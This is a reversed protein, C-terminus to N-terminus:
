PGLNQPPTHGLEIQQEVEAVKHRIDTPLDGSPFNDVSYGVAEEKLGLRVVGGQFNGGLAAKIVDFTAMDPGKTASVIVSPDVAKQSLDVGIGYIHTQGAAQLAGAGCGGAISFIIDVGSNIQGNALAACPSPNAFDSSYNILVNVSPDVLKAGWQYGAIYHNVPPISFGGIAGIVNLSKPARNTTELMGAVVGVLAGAEEEKFLASEM